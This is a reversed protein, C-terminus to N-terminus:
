EKIVTRHAPIRIVWIEEERKQTIERLTGGIEGIRAELAAAEADDSGLPVDFIIRIVATREEHVREKGRFAGNVEYISFGHLLPRPHSYLQDRLWAYLDALYEIRAPVYAELIEVDDMPRPEPEM